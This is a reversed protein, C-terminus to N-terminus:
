KIDFFKNQSKVGSPNSKTKQWPNDNQKPADLTAVTLTSLGGKRYLWILLIDVSPNM